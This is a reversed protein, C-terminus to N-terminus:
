IVQLIGSPRSVILGKFEQHCELRMCVNLLESALANGSCDMPHVKDTLKTRIMILLMERIEESKLLVYPDM